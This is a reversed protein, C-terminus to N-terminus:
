LHSQFAQTLRNLLVFVCVFLLWVFFMEFYLNYILFYLHLRKPTSVANSVSDILIFPKAKPVSASPQSFYADVSYQTGPELCVPTQLLAIRTLLSVASDCGACLPKGWLLVPRATPHQM